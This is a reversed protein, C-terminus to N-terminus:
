DQHERVGALLMSLIGWAALGLVFAAFISRLRRPEQAVDPLSPQAVRELYVQQRQAENRASELSAMTSALQKNAFDSELALRQFDTAKNALSKQGGTVKTNEKVIEAELTKARNQLSPIQPNQPTFAKLQALQTTTAILEDQLKAVQQLQVTAQREPDVVGQQNRYASLALAAAKAKGEAQTVESQAFKIMDQRGRENLRNVLAESQALLLRNANVADQATFAKVSLTTISSTSDTQVKVMKQYYRHLAEFSNDADLGAFRSLRDVDTGSYAKDLKLQDRLIALADRSLVYDHVTYSDDQARSFGSGKLLAGLPSASQREPSRVVFSSESTYVDSAMLGFYIVSLTTPLVM